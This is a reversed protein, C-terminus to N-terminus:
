DEVQRGRRLSERGGFGSEGLSMIHKPGILAYSKCLNARYAYNIFHSILRYITARVHQVLADHVRKVRKVRISNSSTIAMIPVSMARKSGATCAARSADRRLEQPLLRLCSPNAM